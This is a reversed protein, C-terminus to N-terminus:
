ERNCENDIFLSSEENNMENSNKGDMEMEYSSTGGDKNSPPPLTGRTCDTGGDKNSPPPLTGGRNTTRGEPARVSDRDYGGEVCHCWHNASM